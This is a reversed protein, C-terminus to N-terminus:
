GILWHAGLDNYSEFNTPPVDLFGFPSDQYSLAQATGHTLLSGIFLLAFPSINQTM